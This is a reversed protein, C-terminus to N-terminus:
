KEVLYEATFDRSILDDGVPAGASRYRTKRAVNASRIGAVKCLRWVRRESVEYGLERINDALVRYGGSADNHHLQGLVGM